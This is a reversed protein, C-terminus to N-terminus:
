RDSAPPVVVVPCASHHLVHQGVSGLLERVGGHGRSGVVLLSASSSAAVLADVVPPCAIVVEIAVDVGADAAARAAQDRHHERRADVAARDVDPVFLPPPGDHTSRRDIEWGNVVKVTAGRRAAETVAWALAARAGDSDDVGVVIPGTGPEDEQGIVAVPGPRRHVCTRAVSGLVLSAVEGRGRTGVVLLDAGESAALLVEAPAGPTALADIPLDAGAALARRAEHEARGVIRRSGEAIEEPEVYVGATAPWTAAPIQWANVLLLRRGPTVAAERAAWRVARTSGASGDVGVVITRPSRPPTPDARDM